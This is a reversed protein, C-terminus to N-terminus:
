LEDAGEASSCVNPFQPDAKIRVEALENPGLWDAVM